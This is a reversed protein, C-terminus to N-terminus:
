YVGIPTRVMGTNGGASDSQNYRGGSMEPRCTRHRCSEGMLAAGKRALIQVVIIPERFTVM